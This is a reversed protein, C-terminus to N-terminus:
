GEISVNVHQSSINKENTSVTKLLSYYLKEVRRTGIRIYEYTGKRSM